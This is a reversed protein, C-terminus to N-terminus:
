FPPFPDAIPTVLELLRGLKPEGRPTLDVGLQSADTLVWGGSADSIEAWPGAWRGSTQVIDGCARLGVAQSAVTPQARVFIGKGHVVRLRSPEDTRITQSPPLLAGVKHLRLDPSRLAAFMAVSSDIHVLGDCESLLLGDILADRADQLRTGGILHSENNTGDPLAGGNTRRVGRRCVLTAGALPCDSSSGCAAQFAPPASEDDTALVIACGAFPLQSGDGTNAPSKDAAWKTIAESAAALFEDVTPVRMTLQIAAVGPTAVRKHVGLVLRPGASRAGAMIADVEAQIHAKPRLVQAGAAEAFSRRLADLHKSRWLLGRVMSFFFPNLWTPQADAHADGDRRNSAVMETLSAEAAAANTVHNIPQFLDGFLDFAHEGYVFHSEGGSRRWDLVVHAGTSNAFVLTEGLEILNTFLGQDSHRRRITPSNLKAAQICSAIARSSLTLAAKM